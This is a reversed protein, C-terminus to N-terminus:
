PTKLTLSYSDTLTALTSADSGRKLKKCSHVPVRQRKNVANVIRVYRADLVKPSVRTSRTARSPTSLGHSYAVGSLDLPGVINFRGALVGIAVDPRLIHPKPRFKRSGLLTNGLKLLAGGIREVPNIPSEIRKM